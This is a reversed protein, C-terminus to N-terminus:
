SSSQVVKVSLENRRKWPPTFPDNYQALNVVAEADASWASNKELEALLQKTKAEVDAKGAFGGFMVVAREEGPKQTLTVGSGSLPTPAGQLEEWFTSPMVFSMQREEGEGESFVPTTMKMSTSEENKGFIYGALAGFASAGALQPNSIKADTKERQERPKAMNVSCVSFPQYRRIEFGTTTGQLVDYKPTELGEPIRKVIDDRAVVRRSEQRAKKELSRIAPLKTGEEEINALSQLLITLALRQRRLASTQDDTEEPVQPTSMDLVRRLSRRRARRSVRALPRIRSWWPLPAEVSAILLDNLYTAVLETQNKKRMDRVEELLSSAATSNGKLAADLFVRAKASDSVAITSSPSSAAKDVISSSASKIATSSVKRESTYRRKNNSLAPPTLFCVGYSWILSFLVFLRTLGMIEQEGKADLL